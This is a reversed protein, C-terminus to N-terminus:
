GGFIENFFAIMRAFSREDAQKNYAINPLGFDGAHPNTFAHVADAYVDMEWNVKADAMEKAFADRQAPPIFADAAGTLVLVRGKINKADDPNPTALGGHFCVVGLVPSGSRALELVSTGGFCYGIAAIKSPDVEARGKLQDFAANVRARMLGRDNMIPGSLAPAVKPDATNKGDGYMDAAFALYGLKALQEARSKAYDNLGWWEPVILVGPRKGTTSDDYAIYGKLTVDGQKYDVTETKIGAMTSSGMILFTPILVVAAFFARKM